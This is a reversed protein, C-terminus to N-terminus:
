PAGPRPPRVRSNWRNRDQEIQDAMRGPDRPFALQERHAPRDRQEGHDRDATTGGKCAATPHRRVRMPRSPCCTWGTEPVDGVAGAGFRLVAVTFLLMTHLLLTGVVGYKHREFWDLFRDFTSAQSQMASLSLVSRDVCPIRWPKSAPQEVPQGGKVLGIAFGQLDGGSPRVRELRAAGGWAPLAPGIAAQRDLSPGDDRLVSASRSGRENRTFAVWARVFCM